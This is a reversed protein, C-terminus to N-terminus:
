PALVNVQNPKSMDFNDDEPML